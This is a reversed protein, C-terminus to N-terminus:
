HSTMECFTNMLKVQPDPIPKISFSNNNASLAFEVSVEAATLGYLFVASHTEVKRFGPSYIYM